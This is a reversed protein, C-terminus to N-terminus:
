KGTAEVRLQKAYPITDAFAFDKAPFSFRFQVLCGEVLVIRQVVYLYIIGGKGDPAGAAQAAALSNGDRSIFQGDDYQDIPFAHGVKESAAKIQARSDDVSLDSAVLDLSRTDYQGQGIDLNNQSMVLLSLAPNDPSVYM